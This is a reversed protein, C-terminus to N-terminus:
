PATEGSPPGDASAEPSSSESPTRTRGSPRRTGSGTRGNRSHAPLPNQFPALVEPSFRDTAAQGASRALSYDALLADVDFRIPGDPGWLNWDVVCGRIFTEYWLPRLHMTRQQAVADQKAQSAGDPVPYRDSAEILQQEATLGVGLPLSDALFVGDGEARHPSGPCTCDRCRILDSM